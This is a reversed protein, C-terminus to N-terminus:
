PTANKGTNRSPEGGASGPAARQGAKSPPDFDARRMSGPRDDCPILQDAWGPKGGFINGSSYSPEASENRIATGSMNFQNGSILIQGSAPGIRIGVRNPNAPETFINANIVIDSAHDLDIDRPEYPRRTKEDGGSIEAISCPTTSRPRGCGKSFSEAIATPSMATASTFGPSRGISRRGCSIWWSVRRMASSIRNIHVGKFEIGGGPNDVRLETVDEGAGQIHMGYSAANGSAELVVRQALRYTGAPIIIHVQRRAGAARMMGAFAGSSDREGTADAGFEL